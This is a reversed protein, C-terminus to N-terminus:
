RRVRIKRNQLLLNQLPLSKKEVPKAGAGVKAFSVNGKDDVKFEGLGEVPFRKDKNLKDKLEDVFTEIKKQAEDKPIDEKKAIYSVLLGDNYKLFPSFTVTSAEPSLGERKILAGFGPIIIRNNTNFLSIIYKQMM